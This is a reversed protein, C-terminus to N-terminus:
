EGAGRAELGEILTAIRAFGAATQDFGHRTANRLEFLGGRLESIEGRLETFGTDVKEELRDLRERTQEGLANIAQRHADVKLVLDGYDRDNSAAIHRAAVAESRAFVADSMVESMRVELQTIRTEHDPLQTM